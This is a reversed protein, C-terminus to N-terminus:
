YGNTEQIKNAMAKQPCSQKRSIKDIRNFTLFLTHFSYGTM